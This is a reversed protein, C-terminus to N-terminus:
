DLKKGLLFFARIIGARVRLVFHALKQLIKTFNKPQKGLHGWRPAKGYTAEPSHIKRATAANKASKIEGTKNIQLKKNIQLVKKSKWTFDLPFKRLRTFTAVTKV